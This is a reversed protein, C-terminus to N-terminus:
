HLAAGATPITFHFASGEGPRSEVWIRGGHREVIAKAIPLGLGAGLRADRGAQWFPEFVHDLAASDIGPGTDSVTFRVEAAATLVEMTVRGGEPTFKIANGILNAIAQLLRGGDGQIPPLDRAVSCEFRISKREAQFHFAECSERVLHEVDLKRTEIALPQGAEIRSIDLLDQILRNMRGVQRRILQALREAPRGSVESEVQAAAVGISTLPNRLDHSVIGLVDDRSQVAREADRRREEAEELVLLRRFAIAALDAFARVHGIERQGFREHDPQRLLVLAGLPEKESVLPVIMGRCAGCVGAVVSGMPRQERTMDDILEPEGRRLVAEALSGPFPARAGEPPAGSGRAAIVVVEDLEHDVREVYAADAGAAECARVAIQTTLHQFQWSGMLDRAVRALLESEEARQALAASSERFREDLRTVVLGALFALVGLGITISSQAAFARRIAELREHEAENIATELRRVAALTERYLDQQEGLHEFYEETTIRNQLLQEHRVSWRANWSRVEEVRAEVPSGLRVALPALEDVALQKRAQAGAYHRAFTARPRMTYGRVAVGQETLASHLEATLEGAPEVVEEIFRRQRENADMVVLPVVVLIGLSVLVFLLPVRNAFGFVGPARRM